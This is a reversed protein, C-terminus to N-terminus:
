IIDFIYNNTALYLPPRQAATQWIHKTVWCCTCSKWLLNTTHQVDTTYIPSNYNVIGIAVSSEKWETNRWMGSKGVQHESLTMGWHRDTKGTLAIINGSLSPCYTQQNTSALHHGYQSRNFPVYGKHFEQTKITFHFKKERVLNEETSAKFVVKRKIFIWHQLHLVNTKGSHKGSTYASQDLQQRDQVFPPKVTSWTNALGLRVSLVSIFYDNIHM